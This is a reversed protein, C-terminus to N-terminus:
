WTWWEARVGVYHGWKEAGMLELYPSFQNEAAFDNFRALSFVFQIHPRSWVSRGGRTAITPVLSVKTMRYWDQNGEQRQSYHLETQLHFYDTLYNLFKLGVSLDQKFNFVEQGLYTTAMERTNAAGKNRNYISYANISLRDSINFLAHNVFHWSYANHFKYNSTDVAGFTEWSRSSGGDGGNAIGQGYRVAVHYFSGPLFGKLNNVQYKAGLVWGDDRPFSLLINDTSDSSLNTPDGLTHYEGLLTLLHDKRAVIDHELKFAIRRRIELSPTGSRINLFFYPPVTQTTDSSSIFNANFRTQKYEVGFGQGSHDNFYFYDALHVDEGRYFRSGTWINLGKTFIDRAEVFVEPLGIVLRDSSNTNSTGILSGNASYVNTRVQVRVVTSDKTMNEPLMKFEMGLEMYNQEDLRGGISGMKNLNLRRGEVGANKFNWSSSIRGYSGFSVNIGKTLEPYQYVISTQGWSLQSATLLLIAFFVKLPTNLTNPNLRSNLVIRFIIFNRYTTTKFLGIYSELLPM